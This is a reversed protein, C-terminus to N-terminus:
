YNDIILLGCTVSAASRL